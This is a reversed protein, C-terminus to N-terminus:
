TKLVSSRLWEIFDAVGQFIRRSAELLPLTDLNARRLAAQFNKGKGHAVGSSRLGQVVRLPGIHKEVDAINKEILFQQLHNLSGSNKPQAILANSIQADNLFDNILKALLGNQQDFEAQNDELCVHVQRFVYRDEKLPENWLPWGFVDCWRKNVRSYHQKIRLDPMKPDAFWARINRKYFTESVGGDPQVNFGRWHAREASPLYGLDKLWAIVYKPHDNDIRLDWLSGCRLHGDEVEYREPASFYKALVSRLFFVPTLARTADAQIEQPDCTELVSNGAEDHGVIFSPYNTQDAKYPDRYEVAGPCSIIAKGLLRSICQFNDTPVDEGVSRWWHFSSAHEEEEGSKLGLEHLPYECCYNGAWQLALHMQKARLFDTLFRLQVEVHHTSVRVVEHEVGHVDCHLFINRATDHYLNHFLRFEEAIEIASPRHSPFSRVHVLAEAGRENGNRLYYVERVTRGDKWSQSCEVHPVFDSARHDWGVGKLFEEARQIPLLFSFTHFANTIEESSYICVFATAQPKEIVSIHRQQLLREIERRKTAEDM